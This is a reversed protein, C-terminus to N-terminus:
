VCILVACSLVRYVGRYVLCLGKLFQIHALYVLFSTVRVWKRSPAHVGRENWRCFSVASCLLAHHRRSRSCSRRCSARQSKIEYVSKARSRKISRMTDVVGPSTYHRLPYNMSEVQREIGSLKKKKEHYKGISLTVPSSQFAIPRFPKTWSVTIRNTPEPKISLPCAWQDKLLTRQVHAFTYHVSIYWILM